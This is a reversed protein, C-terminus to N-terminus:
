CTVVPFPRCQDRTAATLWAACRGTSLTGSPAKLSIGRQGSLCPAPSAATSAGCGPFESLPLFITSRRM